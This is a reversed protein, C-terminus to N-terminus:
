LSPRDGSSFPLTRFFRVVLLEEGATEGEPASGAARRAYGPLGPALSRISPSRHRNGPGDCAKGDLHFDTTKKSVLKKLLKEITRRHFSVACKKEIESLLQAPSVDRGSKIRERVLALVKPTLKVPGKPGPKKPLLGPSGEELFKEQLIYFTQRSVGFQGFCYDLCGLAPSDNVYKRIRHILPKIMNVGRGSRTSM